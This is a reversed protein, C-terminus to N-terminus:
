AENCPGDDKGDQRWISVVCVDFVKGAGICLAFRERARQRLIKGVAEPPLLHRASERRAVVRQRGVNPRMSSNEAAVVAFGARRRDAAVLIIEVPSPVSVSALGHQREAVIRGVIAVGVFLNGIQAREIRRPDHVVLMVVVEPQLM